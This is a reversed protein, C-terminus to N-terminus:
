AVVLWADNLGHVMEEKHREWKWSEAMWCYVMIEEGHKKRRRSRMGIM